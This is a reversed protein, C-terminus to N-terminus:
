GLYACSARIARLDRSFPHSRTARGRPDRGVERKDSRAGHTERGSVFMVSRIGAGANHVRVAFRLVCRTGRGGKERGRTWFRRRGHPLLYTDSASGKRVLYDCEKSLLLSISHFLTGPVMTGGMKTRVDFRSSTGPTKDSILASYTSCARRM